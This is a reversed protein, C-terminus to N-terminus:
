RRYAAWDNIEALRKTAALAVAHAVITVRLPETLM